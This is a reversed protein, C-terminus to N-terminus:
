EISIHLQENLENIGNRFTYFSIQTKKKERDMFRM